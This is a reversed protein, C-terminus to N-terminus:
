YIPNQPQSTWPCIHTKSVIANWDKRCAVSNNVELSEAPHVPYGTIICAPRTSTFMGEYLTGRSQERSPFRQEISADTVVSLVWTRVEERTQQFLTFL